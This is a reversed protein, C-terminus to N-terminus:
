TIENGDPDIFHWVGDADRHVQYGREKLLNHRRCAPVGNRPVTAGHAAWGVAHDIDCWEVPGDCGLWICETALLQVAERASGRFLRSRQGLDIVTGAADIVVRRIYGALAANVADDRSLRRGRQTHCVVSRYRRPDIAEGALGAEFTDVDNLVNLTLRPPRVGPRASAAARAIVLVADARRQAATRCLDGTDVRDGLRARAERWDTRWEADIFHAFSENFESGSLEDLSGSLTWGGERRSRLTVTRDNRLRRHRNRDGVPDALAEWTRVRGEFVDFPLGIADDLLMQQDRVLVAPDIRPNAAVRAMLEGQAVGVDGAAAADAWALLRRHMRATQVRRYAEPASLQLRHRLWAKATFFGQDGFPAAVAIGGAVGVAAAEVMRRVREVGEALHALGVPDLSTVDVAGLLGVADVAGAVLGIVLDDALEGAPADDVLAAAPSPVVGSAEAVEYGDM